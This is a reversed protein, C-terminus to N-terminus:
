HNRTPLNLLDVKPEMLSLLWMILYTANKNFALLSCCSSPAPINCWTACNGISWTYKIYICPAWAGRWGRLFFFLFAYYVVFDQILNVKRNEKSVEEHVVIRMPYDEGIICGYKKQIALPTKWPEFLFEHPLSALEPM